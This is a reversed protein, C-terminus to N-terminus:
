GLYDFLTRVNLSGHAALAAQLATQDLTLQTAAAAVDTDKTQSLDQTVANQDQVAQQQSQQIWNEVNGYFTTAQEVQTLATKLATGATQVGATDNSSLASSLSSIAQLVSGSASNDFISSATM